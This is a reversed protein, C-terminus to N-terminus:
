QIKRVKDRHKESILIVGSPMVWLVQENEQGAPVEVTEYQLIGNDFKANGYTVSFNGHNSYVTDVDSDKPIPTPAETPEPKAEPAVPASENHTLIKRGDDQPGCGTIILGCFALSLLTIKM